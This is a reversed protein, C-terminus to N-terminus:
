TVSIFEVYKVSSLLKKIDKNPTQFVCYAGDFEYNTINNNKLMFECEKTFWRDFRFTVTM